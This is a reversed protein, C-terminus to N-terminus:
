HHAEEEGDNSNIGLLAKLPSFRGLGTALIFIGVLGWWGVYGYLAGYLLVVGILIRVISEIGGVNLKM